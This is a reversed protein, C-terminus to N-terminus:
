VAIGLMDRFLPGVRHWEVMSDFEGESGRCYWKELTAARACHGALTTATLEDMEDLIQSQQGVIADTAEDAGESSGDLVRDLQGQLALFRQSLAILEADPQPTDPTAFSLAAVGALATFGAAGLLERRSPQAFPCGTVTGGRRTGPPPIIHTAM